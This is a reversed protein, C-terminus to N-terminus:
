QKKRNLRGDAYMKMGASKILNRFPLPQTSFLMYASWGDMIRGNAVGTKDFYLWNGVSDKKYVNETSDYIGYKTLFEDVSLAYNEGTQYDIFINKDAIQSVEYSPLLSKIDKTSDVLDFYDIRWVVIISKLDWDPKMAKATVTRGFQATGITDNPIRFHIDAEFTMVSYQQQSFSVFSFLTFILTLISKM